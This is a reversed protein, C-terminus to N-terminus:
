PYRYNLYGGGDVGTAETENRCVKQGLENGSYAFCNRKGDQLMEIGLGVTVSCQVSGLQYSRLTCSGWSYSATSYSGDGVEGSENGDAGSISIDLDSFDTTYVGNELYNRDLAKKIATAAMVAQQYRARMVAVRYQPLAIASLIGIILVVVLLEILTFGRKM